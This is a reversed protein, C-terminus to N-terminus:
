AAIPREEYHGDADHRQDAVDSEEGEEYFTDPNYLAEVPADSVLAAYTKAYLEDNAAEPVILADFQEAEDESTSSREGRVRSGSLAAVAVFLDEDLRHSVIAFPEGKVENSSAAAHPAATQGYSAAASLENVAEGSGDLAATAYPEGEEEYSAAVDPVEAEHLAAAAAFLEEALKRSVIDYPGGDVEESLATAYPKNDQEYSADVSPEDKEDLAAAVRVEVAEEYFEAAYLETNVDDSLVAAYLAELQEASAIGYPGNDREVPEAAGYPEESPEYPEAGEYPEGGQELSDSAVYFNEDQESWAGADGMAEGAFDDRAVLEDCYLRAEERAAETAFRRLLTLLPALEDPEESECRTLVREIMRRKLRAVGGPDGVFGGERMAEIAEKFAPYTSPPLGAKDFLARLGVRGRDYILSSVRGIPLETLEVLAEEFLATNGCLLSRLILGATLQGSARLHRILTRLESSHTTAAITVTAKECAERTVRQAQDADLWARQVVFGALTESLKAVLRHRTAVPLDERALLAERIAALHGHREVVRDVSFPAIDADGNEVLLLCSEATGVEAVAAAVPRPLAARIAIAAQIAPAGTAVADVLDADVFLPSLALVSAAIQPQDAALAFVISPPANPSAALADALARRVLPSPDDLMMLMAGEAAGLDDSSLDSCLYARALSSTAEAREGAPATRVWQLFHRVIM